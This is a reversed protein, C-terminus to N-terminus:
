YGFQDMIDSAGDGWTFGRIFIANQSNLQLNDNYASLYYSLKGNVMNEVSNFIVETQVNSPNIENTIAVAFYQANEALAADVARKLCDKNLTAEKTKLGM